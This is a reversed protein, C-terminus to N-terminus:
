PGTDVDIDVGAAGRCADAVTRLLAADADDALTALGTLEAAMLPCRDAPIHQPLRALAPLFVPVTGAALAQDRVRTLVTSWTDEDIPVTVADAAIQDDHRPRIRIVTTLMDDTTSM